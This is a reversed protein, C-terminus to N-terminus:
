IRYGSDCDNYMDYKLGMFNRGYNGPVTKAVSRLFSEATLIHTSGILIRRSPHKKQLQHVHRCHGDVNSICNSGSLTTLYISLNLFFTAM